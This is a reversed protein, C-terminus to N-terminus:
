KRTARITTNRQLVLARNRWQDRDKLASVLANELQKIKEVAEIRDGYIALWYADGSLHSYKNQLRKLLGATM